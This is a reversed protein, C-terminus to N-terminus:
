RKISHKGPEPPPGGAHAEYEQIAQPLLKELQAIRVDDSPHTSLFQEFQSTEGGGSKAQMRKWFAVSERPDYGARALFFLGDHDAELEAERGFKLNVLSATIGALSQAVQGKLVTEILMSAGYMRTMAATGHRNTAHAIEHGMVVALGADGQALPLIGTYVAMKGGPLCFANATAPDDIVKVEWQFLNAIEPDSEKVAAVLRDTVREVMAVQPGDALVKQGALVEQYAQEGLRVDDEPPILNIHALSACSACLAVLGAGARLTWAERRPARYLGVKGSSREVVSREVM